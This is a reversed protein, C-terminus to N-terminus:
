QKIYRGNVGNIIDFDNVLPLKLVTSTVFRGHKDLVRVAVQFFVTNVFRERVHGARSSCDLM